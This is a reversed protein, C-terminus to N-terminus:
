ILFYYFYFLLAKQEFKFNDAFVQLFVIIYFAMEANFSIFFFIKMLFNFIFFFM